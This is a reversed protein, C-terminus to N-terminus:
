QQQDHSKCAPDKKMWYFILSFSSCTASHVFIKSLRINLNEKVTDNVLM